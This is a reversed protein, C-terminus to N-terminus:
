QSLDKPIKSQVQVQITVMCLNVTTDDSSVMSISDQSLLLKGRWVMMEVLRGAGCVKM